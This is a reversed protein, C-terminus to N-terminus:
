ATSLPPLEFLKSHSPTLYWIHWWVQRSSVIPGEDQLCAPMSLKGLGKWWAECALDTRSFQHSAWGPNMRAIQQHGKRPCIQLSQPQNWTSIPEFVVESLRFDALLYFFLGQWCVRCHICEGWIGCDIPRGFIWVKECTLSKKQGNTSWPLPM